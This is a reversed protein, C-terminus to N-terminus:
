RAEEAFLESLTVSTLGRAAMADLIGPLAAVGAPEFDDHEAADHLLVIAGDKLGATIRETVREPTAGATGDFARVSWAALEVGAKRAGAATRPSVMGMPPRFWRPPKALLPTLADRSRRLDMQVHSPTRWAFLRDHQFGHLAIEHGAEVMEKVLEPYKQAKRAVVFFTARQEAKALAELVKRTTPPYPGDDFTLAILRPGPEARSVADGFMEFAPFIMGAVCLVLYAVMAGVAVGMPVPEFWLSRVLLSIGAISSLWLAIRAPPM